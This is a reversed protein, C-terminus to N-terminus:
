LKSIAYFKYFIIGAFCIVINPIWVLVKIIRIDAAGAAIGNVAAFMVYYAFISLIGWSFGAAKGSKKATLGIPISIFMFAVCALPITLKSYLNIVTKPSIKDKASQIKKRLEMFSLEDDKKELKEGQAYDQVPLDITTSNFAYKDFKKYIKDVPKMISGDNLVLRIYGSDRLIKGTKATITNDFEDLIMIGSIDDGIIKAIKIKKGSIVEPQEEKFSIAPTKSVLKNLQKRAEYMCFPSFYNIVAFDILTLALSFIIIPESIKIISVGCARMAIIESDAALRGLTMLISITLSIPITLQFSAPIYLLFLTIIEFFPVGKGIVMNIIKYVNTFMFLM